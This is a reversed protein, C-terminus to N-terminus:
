RSLMWVIAWVIAALNMALIVAAAVKFWKMLRTRGEREQHALLLKSRTESHSDANTDLLSLALDFDGKILALEALNLQTETLGKRAEENGPWERLAENYLALANQYNTYGVSSVDGAPKAETTIPATVTTLEKARSVLTHSAAHRMYVRIANQFETVTRYRDEPKTAMAKMAIDMLEGTHTTERIVNDVVVRRIEAMKESVSLTGDPPRTSFDHPPLGTIVEFLMAGLLYIDCAPGIRALPGTILEPAMYAPTGSGLGATTAIPLRGKGEGFPLALGWDSDQLPGDLTALADLSQLVEPVQSRRLIDCVTSDTSSRLTATVNGSNARLRRDVLRQVEERDPLSLAGQEVLIEALPQSKRLSWLVCGEALMSADIFQNQVAVAGFLLNLDTDQRELPTRDSKDCATAPAAQLHRSALDETAPPVLLIDRIKECIAFLSKGRHRDDLSDLPKSVDHLAQLHQLETDVYMSHSVPIWLVKLGSERMKLIAPLEDETIFRSALFHKSVLLIAVKAVSLEAHIRPYWEEGPEIFKDSWISLKRRKLLPKLMTQLEALWYEDKHSYSLFVQERIVAPEISLMAHSRPVASQPM